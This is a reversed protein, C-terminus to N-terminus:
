SDLIKKLTKLAADQFADLPGNFKYAAIEKTTPKEHFVFVMEKKIDPNPISVRYMIEKIPKFKSVTGKYTKGSYRFSFPMQEFKVM